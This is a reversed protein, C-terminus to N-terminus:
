EPAIAVTDGIRVRGTTLVRAYLRSHGPHSKQSIRSVDGNTFSAAIKRCPPTYSAIEIRVSAGVALKVGPELRHWDLGTITLNEGTSGPFIPHGESQLTKICELSYLCLARDTGGHHRLDNQRDGFIGNETIEARHYALKPVGGNSLSIQFISAMVQM